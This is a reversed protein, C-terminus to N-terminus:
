EAAQQFTGKPLSFEALVHGWRHGEPKPLEHFPIELTVAFRGDGQQKLTLFATGQSDFCTVTDRDREIRAVRQEIPSIGMQGPREGNFREIQANLDAIPGHPRPAGPNATKAEAPPRSASEAVPKASEEAARRPTCGAVAIM